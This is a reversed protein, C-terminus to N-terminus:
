SILEDDGGAIRTFVQEIVDWAYGRRQLYATLRRKAAPDRLQEPDIRKRAIELATSVEQDPNLGELARDTEERGM